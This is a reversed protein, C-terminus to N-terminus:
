KKIYPTNHSIDYRSSVGGLHLLITNADQNISIEIAYLKSTERLKLKTLVICLSIPRALTM